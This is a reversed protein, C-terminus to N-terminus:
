AGPPDALATDHRRRIEALRRADPPPGGAPFAAATDELFQELGAPVFVVLVRAAAPGPNSFAHVTGRPVFVFSGAAARVMQGGVRIDVEGEVVYLAEDSRRHRHPPLGPAGPAPASEVVALRGGTEDGTAKITVESGRDALPIRRGHGPMLVVSRGAAAM